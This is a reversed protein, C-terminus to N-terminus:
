ELIPISNKANGEFIWKVIKVKVGQDEFNKSIKVKM